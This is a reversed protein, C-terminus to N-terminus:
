SSSYLKVIIFAVLTSTAGSVTYFMVNTTDSEDAELFILRLM